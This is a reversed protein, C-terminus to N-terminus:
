FQVCYRELERFDGDCRRILCVLTFANRQNSQCRISVPEEDLCNEEL